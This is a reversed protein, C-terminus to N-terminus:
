LLFILILRLQLTFCMSSHTCLENTRSSVFTNDKIPLDSCVHVILNVQTGANNILIDIQGFLERAKETAARTAEPDSLDVPLIRSTSLFIASPAYEQM